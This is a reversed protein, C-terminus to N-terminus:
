PPYDGRYETDRVPRSWVQKGTSLDVARLTLPEEVLGADTRRTFPGTEFVLRGGIVMFAAQSLHSTTQGTKAGTATEVITWEYKDWTDDKAIRKSRLTHAGDISLRQTPDTPAGESGTLNEPASARRDQPVEEPNVAAAKGTRLEIKVAGRTDQKNEVPRPAGDPLAEDPLEDDTPMGRVAVRRFEWNVFSDTRDAAAYVLFQGGLDHEIGARVGAPLDVKATSERKGNERTNLVILDLADDPADPEWQCVLLGDGVTLPQAAVSVTWLTAGTEADLAEVARAPTMLYIHKTQPEVVVGPRLAFSEDAPQAITVGPFGAALLVAAGVIETRIRNVM